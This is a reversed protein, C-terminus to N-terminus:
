IKEIFQKALKKQKESDELEKGIVKEAILISIDAVEKKISNLMDVRDKDIILRAEEIIDRAKIKADEKSEDLISKSMKQADEIIKSRQQKAKNVMEKSASILKDNDEKIKKADDLAKQIYRDRESIKSIIPKWAYKRLLYLLILFVILTWFILGEKPELM